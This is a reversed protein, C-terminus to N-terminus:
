NRLRCVLGEMVQGVWGKVRRRKGTRAKLAVSHVAITHLNQHM